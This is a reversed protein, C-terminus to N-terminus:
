GVGIGLEVGVVLAEGVEVGEVEVGEVSGVARMMSLSAVFVDNTEDGVNMMMKASQAPMGTTTDIPNTIDFFCFCCGVCASVCGDSTTMMSWSAISM